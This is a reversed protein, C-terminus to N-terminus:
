FIGLDNRLHNAVDKYFRNFDNRQTRNESLVFIDNWQEDWTAPYSEKYRDINARIAANERSGRETEFSIDLLRDYAQKFEPSWLFSHIYVVKDLKRKLQIIEPPSYERWSGVYNFCCYLSNLNGAIEEFIHLRLEVRARNKWEANERRMLQEKISFGVVALVIPITAQMALKTVELSNWVDM